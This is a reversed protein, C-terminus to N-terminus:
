LLCWYGWRRWCDLHCRVLDEVTRERMGQQELAVREAEGRSAKLNPTLSYASHHAGELVATVLGQKPSPCPYKSLLHVYDYAVVQSRTCLHNCGRGESGEWLCSHCPHCDRLRGSHRLVIMCVREPRQTSHGNMDFMESHWRCNLSGSCGGARRCSRSSQLAVEFGLEAWSLCHQVSRASLGGFLM